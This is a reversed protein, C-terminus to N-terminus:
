ADEASEGEIEQEETIEQREVVVREGRKILHRKETRKVIPRSRWKAVIVWGLVLVVAFALTGAAAGAGGGIKDGLAVSAALAAAIAGVVAAWKNVSVNAM